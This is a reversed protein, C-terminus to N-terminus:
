LCMIYFELLTPVEKDLAWQGFRQAVATGLDNFITVNLTAILINDVKNAIKFSCKPYYDLIYNKFLLPMSMMLLSYALVTLVVMAKALLHPTPKVFTSLWM